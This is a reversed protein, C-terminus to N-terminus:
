EFGTREYNRQFKVRKQLGALGGILRPMEEAMVYTGDENQQVDTPPMTGATSNSPATSTCGLSLGIMLTFFIIVMVFIHASASPYFRDFLSM